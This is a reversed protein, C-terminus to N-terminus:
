PTAIYSYINGQTNVTPSCTGSLSGYGGGPAKVYSYLWATIANTGSITASSVDVMASDAVNVQVTTCSTISSLKAMVDSKMKCWIGTSCETISASSAIVHGQLNAQIGYGAKRIIASDAIVTGSTLCEIGNTGAYISVEPAIIVGSTRAYLGSGTTHSIILGTLHCYNGLEALIGKGCDSIALADGIVSGGDSCLVGATSFKRVAVQDIQVMATPAIGSMDATGDGVIALHQLAIDASTTVGSCGVCNLVTRYVRLTAEVAGSPLTATTSHITIRSNVVDVDTIEYTGHLALPNTGGTADSIACEDGEVIGDVDFVNLVISYDGSSGSSSQVSTIQRLIRTEGELILGKPATHLSSTLTYAGAGIKLM